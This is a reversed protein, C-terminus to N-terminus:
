RGFYFIIGAGTHTGWSRSELVLTAGDSKTERNTYGFGLEGFVAFRPHPTYQVGFLGDVQYTTATLETVDDLISESNSNTRGYAFHPGAYARVRDWERVSFLAAVGTAFTSSDGETDFIESRTESSGLAFSAEPRVAVKDTVHWVLGVSAPYGMTIGVQGAEQAQAPGAVVLVGALAALAVRNVKTM